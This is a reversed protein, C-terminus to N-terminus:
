DNDDQSAPVFALLDNINCELTACLKCLVLIDLETIENNYYNNLQKLNIQAKQSFNYKNMEKKELLEALRIQLHGYDKDM